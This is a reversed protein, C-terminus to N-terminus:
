MKRLSEKTDTSPCKEIIKSFEIIRENLFTEITQLREQSWNYKSHREFKFNILKHLDASMNQTCATRVMDNFSIGHYSYSNQNAYEKLKMLDTAESELAYAFLSAGNDFIPNFGLIKKTHSDVMFGFNGFHRDKNYIISDFLIMRQFDRYIEINNLNKIFRDVAALGGKPVIYGAPVYSIDKSTFMKCTSALIRKWKELQYEVHNYNLRKVIQSAYYESYPENGSNTGSKYM